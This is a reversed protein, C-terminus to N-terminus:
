KRRGGRMKELIAKAADQASGTKILSKATPKKEEFDIVQGGDV